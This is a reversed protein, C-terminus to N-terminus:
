DVVEFTAAPSGFLAASVNERDEFSGEWSGPPFFEIQASVITYDGPPVDPVTFSTRFTCTGALQATGVLLVEGPEDPVPEQGGPLVSEWEDPNANWWLQIEGSPERYSGDEAYIPTPGTVEITSGPAGSSESLEIRYEGEGVPPCDPPTPSAKSARESVVLSNLSDLMQQGLGQGAQGGFAAHVSFVRRSDSFDIRYTPVCGSGEYSALSSEDLELRTPRQPASVEQFEYLWLFAGDSPMVGLPGTGCFGHSLDFDFTSVYLAPSQTPGAWRVRWDEPTTISLGDRDSTHTTWGWHPSESPAPAV